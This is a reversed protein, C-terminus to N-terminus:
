RRRYGRMMGSVNRVHGATVDDNSIPVDTVATRPGTQVDVAVSSRRAEYTLANILRGFEDDTAFPGIVLKTEGGARWVVEINRLVVPAKQVNRIAAEGLAAGPRFATPPRVLEHWRVTISTISSYAVAGTEPSTIGQPSVEVLLRNNITEDVGALGKRVGRAWLLIGIGIATGIVGILALGLSFGNAFWWSTLVAMTPFSVVCMVGVVILVISFTRLISREHAARSAEAFLQLSRGTAVLM